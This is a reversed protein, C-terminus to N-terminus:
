VPASWIGLTWLKKLQMTIDKTSGYRQWVKAHSSTAGFPGLITSRSNFHSTAPEHSSNQPGPSPARSRAEHTAIATTYLAMMQDMYSMHPHITTAQDTPVPGLDARRCAPNVWWSMGGWQGGSGFAIRTTTYLRLCRTELAAERGALRRGINAGTGCRGLPGSDGAAGRRRWGISM